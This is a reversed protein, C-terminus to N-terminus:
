LITGIKFIPLYMTIILGGAVMALVLMIVPELWKSLNELSQEVSYLSQKSLRELLLPLTASTEGIEILYCEEPTLLTMQKIAQHLRCGSKIQTVMQDAHVKIARNTLSQNALAIGEPLPMHSKRTISLVTAWRAVLTLRYLRGAFPLKLFFYDMYKQVVPSKKYLVYSIISFSIGMATVPLALKKFSHSLSMVIQTALPLTANFNSFVEQFKPIAFVLLGVTILLTFALTASPYIMAKKLKNSLTQLFVQQASIQFLVESLQNTKEAAFILQRYNQPFITDHMSLAASLTSGSQIHKYISTVLQSLPTASHKKSLLIFADSLSLRTKLLSALDTTFRYLIQKTKHRRKIHYESRSKLLTIRESKLFERFAAKSGFFVSTCRTGNDDIGRWRIRSQICNLM